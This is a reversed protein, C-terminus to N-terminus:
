SQLASIDAVGLFLGSLENLLALRNGRQKPDEAMVMVEDFFADVPNRLGALAKLVGQYDGNELLPTVRSAMDVVKRHLESEERDVFLGPDVSAPLPSENKKLINRIRKNAAALAEAEPLQRFAAVARVRHDFDAVTTPRVEAVAQFLDPGVGDDAYLGKLRELMFDYVAEVTNTETIREGLRDVARALLQHLDLELHHERLIRLAGLAARRLAFPDKDGTPKQGIGFIGSWPTSSRRWPSPSAPEPRRCATARSARCTSSTWRWRSSPRNATARAQYRGMIGQLEPFEGVMETMLDCRSLLGARKALAPDGGIDIAIHEALEAVRQSKDYMTGLKQQFVVHKLSDIHDELRKKGDQHWFFMADTLRPRIVRENGDRILEPKPSDINAITIFHNMLRGDADFLPFYKQNSKMTVILAEPPVELFTEEFAGAIPVPWEVLATVEDLLGDDLDARGGLTEATQEVQRRIKARREGFDAIM